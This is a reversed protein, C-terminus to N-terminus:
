VMGPDIPVDEEDEEEEDEEEQMERYPKKAKFSEVEKKLDELREEKEKEAIEVAKEAYELAKEFDGNEAYAAGLTSLIYSLKFDTKEAAKQALELALEGDRFLDIPSTALVWAYNNLLGPDDPIIEMAKKYTKIANYHDGMGLFADGQIRLLQAYDDGRFSDQPRELMQNVFALARQRRKQELLIFIKKFELPIPYPVMSILQDLLRLAENYEKKKALIDVKLLVTRVQLELSIEEKTLIEIDEMAKELDGKFFYIKARTYLVQPNRPDKARAADLIAIAEDYKDLIGLIDAKEALINANDPLLNELREVTELAEEFQFSTKQLNLIELLTLTNEPELELARDLMKRAEENLGMEAFHSSAALLLIISDPNIELADRLLQTKNDKDEELLVKLLLAKTKLDIDDNGAKEIALDLAVKGRDMDGNPLFSLRAICYFAQPNDPIIKVAEELDALATHRVMEWDPPLRGAREDVFARALVLGRQMQSSAKLQECYELNEGTLGANKARECLRIVALLDDLTTAAIKAETAQDLYEIGPDVAQTEEAFVLTPVLLFSFVITGVVVVIGQFIKM